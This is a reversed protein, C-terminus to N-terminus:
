KRQWQILLDFFKGLQAPNAYMAQAVSINQSNKGKAEKQPIWLAVKM